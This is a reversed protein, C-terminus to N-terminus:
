CLSAEPAALLLHRLAAQAVEAQYAPVRRGRPVDTTLFRHAMARLERDTVASTGPSTSWRGSSWAPDGLDAFLARGMLIERVVPAVRHGSRVYTRALRGREAHGLPETVFFSWLKDVLFPAHARHAVCAHLVDRWDLRGRHGLVRKLGRDHADHDYYVRLPRGDRWDGRFGTLARAAERVDRETYGATVGLTFLEMLERAFNENPHRKDSDVLSLFAQMAPDTTVVALLRPFPGLAHRRLARNQALMLPTDQDRTAFHDHWLLTLKEVLPRQSRVMRDLWWLVDHGWENM